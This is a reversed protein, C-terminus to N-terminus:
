RVAIVSTWGAHGALLGLGFSSALLCLLGAALAVTAAHRPCPRDAARLTLPVMALGVAVISMMGTALVMSAPAQPHVIAFAVLAGLALVAVSAATRCATQQSSSM